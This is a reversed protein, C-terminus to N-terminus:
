FVAVLLVRPLSLPPPLGWGPVLSDPGQDTNCGTHRKWMEGQEIKQDKRAAGGGEEKYIDCSTM